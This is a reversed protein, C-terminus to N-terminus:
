LGRRGRPLTPHGEETSAYRRVRAARMNIQQNDEGGPKYINSHLNPEMLESAGTARLETNQVYLPEIFIHAKSGLARFM